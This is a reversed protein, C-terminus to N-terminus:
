RNVMSHFKFLRIQCTALLKSHITKKWLALYNDSNTMKTCNKTYNEEKIINQTGLKAAAVLAIYILQAKRSCVRCLRRWCCVTAVTAFYRHFQAFRNWDFYTVHCDVPSSIDPMPAPYLQHDQRDRFWFDCVGELRRRRIEESMRHLSNSLLPQLHRRIIRM